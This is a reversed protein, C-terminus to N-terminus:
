NIKYPLNGESFLELSMNVEEEKFVESIIRLLLYGGFRIRTGLDIVFYTVAGGSILNVRESESVLISKLSEIKSNNMHITPIYLALGFQIDQESSCLEPFHSRHMIQMLQVDNFNINLLFDNNIRKINYEFVIHRITDRLKVNFPLDKYERSKLGKKEYIKRRILNMIFFSIFGFVIGLVFEM